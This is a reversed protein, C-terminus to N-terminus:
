IFVLEFGSLRQQMMRSDKRTDIKGEFVENGRLLRGKNRTISGEMFGNFRCSNTRVLKFVQRVEARGTKKEVVEPELLNDYQGILDIIEYIINNQFVQGRISLKM